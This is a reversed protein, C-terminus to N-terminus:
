INQALEALPSRYIKQLEVCSFYQTGKFVEITRYMGSERINNIKIDQQELMDGEIIIKCKEKARQIITRMTYADTNQGETLYICDQDSIEIGRIDCTPILMLKGNAILSEVLTIDGFKSSLIGGLSTSMLKESRSGPYFGLQDSNKLKAPNFIIVCKSLKGNHINQMIWSLSMYTKCSGARGYLLTLDDNILSDMAMMQYEDKPKFDPFYISKFPKTSITKFGKETWKRKDIVEGKKNKILLYENILLGFQNTPNEYFSALKIDSLTVEKYGKYIELDRKDFEFMRCPLCLGRAKIIMNYDDSILVVEPDEKYVQYAMRLIINDNKHVLYPISIYNKFDLVIEVNDANMINRISQRALYGKDSDIKLNDLEEVSVISIFVKDYDSLKFEGSMLVSTDVFCKNIM